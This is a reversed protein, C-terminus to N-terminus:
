IKIFIGNTFMWWSVVMWFAIYLVCWVMIFPNHTLKKPWPGPGGDDMGWYRCCHCVAGNRIVVANVLDAFQSSRGNSM